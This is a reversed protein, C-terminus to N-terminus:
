KVQYSSIIVVNPKWRQPILLRIIKKLHYNNSFAYLSKIKNVNFGALELEAKILEPTYARMHLNPNKITSQPKTYFTENVPVSIILQGGPALVRKIESYAKFVESAKLHEIIELAVVVEFSNERFPIKLVSGEKFSGKVEKKINIISEKSLDIGSLKHNKNQRQFLKEFYGYGLGIDLIKTNRKKVFKVATKIRDKTMKDFHNDIMNKKIKTDWFIQTNPNKGVKEQYTKKLDDIKGDQALQNRKKDEKIFSHKNISMNITKM